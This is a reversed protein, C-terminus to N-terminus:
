EHPGRKEMFTLSIRLLMYRVVSSLLVAGLARRGIIDLCLDSVAVLGPFSVLEFNRRLEFHAYSTSAGRVRCSSTNPYPVLIHIKLSISPYKNPPPGKYIVFRGAERAAITCGM